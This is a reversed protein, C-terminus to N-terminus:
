GQIWSMDRTGARVQSLAGDLYPGTDPAQRRIADVIANFVLRLLADQGAREAWKRLLATAAGRRAGSGLLRGLARGMAHRRERDKFLHRHRPAQFDILALAELAAAVTTRARGGATEDAALARAVVEDLVTPGIAEDGYILQVTWRDLPGIQEGRAIRHTTWLVFRTALAPLARGTELALLLPAMVRAPSAPDDIWVGIANQVLQPRGASEAIAALARDAHVLTGVSVEGLWQEVVALVERELGAGALACLATPLGELSPGTEDDVVGALWRLLGDHVHPFEEVLHPLALEPVVGQPRVGGDEVVLGAAALVQTVSAPSEHAAGDDTGTALEHDLQDAALSFPRRPTAALVLGAVFWARARDGDLASWHDVVVDSTRQQLVETTTGGAGLDDVADSITRSLRHLAETSPTAADLVPRAAEMVTDLEADDLDPCGVAVRVRVARTLQDRDMVPVRHVDTGAVDPQDDVVFACLGGVTRVREAFGRMADLSRGDGRYAIGWGRLDDPLPIEALPVRDEVVLVESAATVLLFRALTPVGSGSRGALIVHGYTRLRDLLAGTDPPPVVDSRLNRKAAESLQAMRASPNRVRAVQRRPALHGGSLFGHLVEAVLASGASQHDKTREEDANDVVAKLVAWPISRGELCDAVPGGEMELGVADPGLALLADRLRPDSVSTDSSVLPGTHVTVSTPHEDNLYEQIRGVVEKDPTYGGRLHERVGGRVREYTVAAISDALLLDLPATGPRGAAIGVLLVWQPDLEGLARLVHGSTLLGGAGATRLIGVRLPGAPTAVAGVHTRLRRVGNSARAVVADFRAVLAEAEVPVACVLLVDVPDYSPPGPDAEPRLDRKLAEFPNTGAAGDTGAPAVDGEDADPESV